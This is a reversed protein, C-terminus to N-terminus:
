QVATYRKVNCNDTKLRWHQLLNNNINDDCFIVVYWRLSSLNGSEFSWSMISVQTNTHLYQRSRHLQETSFASQGIGLYLYFSFLMLYTKVMKCVEIIQLSIMFLSSFLLFKYFPSVQAFPTVIFDEATHRFSTHDSFIFFIPSLMFELLIEKSLCM